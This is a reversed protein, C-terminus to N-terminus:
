QVLMNCGRLDSHDFRGMLQFADAHQRGLDQTAIFSCSHINALDIVNIGGTKGSPVFAFPDNVDRMLVKMWKPTKFQENGSSYAQSLLETMGYEAAIEKVGFQACLEEHLRKKSWEERRGKMGGTEFVIANPFKFGLEALDLLAYSVGFLIFRKRTKESYFYANELDSFNGYYFGSNSDRTQKILSDIMYILSSDGQELYNPLLAAFVCNELEGFFHHFGLSFSRQYIEENAVFHKSREMGTTGSSKFVISARQNRDIVQHTKFFSIPLFPIETLSNPDPRKLRDIFEGYIDCHNRQYKFAEFALDEFEQDSSIQFIRHIYKELDL